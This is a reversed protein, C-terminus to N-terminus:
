TIVHSFFLSRTYGYTRKSQFSQNQNNHGELIQYWDSYKPWFHTTKKKSNGLNDLIVFHAEGIKWSYHFLKLTFESNFTFQLCLVNAKLPFATEKSNHQKWLYSVVKIKFTLMRPKKKANCKKLKWLCMDLLKRSNVCLDSAEVFSHSNAPTHQCGFCDYACKPHLSIYKEKYSNWVPSQWCYVTCCGSASQEHFLRKKRTVLSDSVQTFPAKAIM